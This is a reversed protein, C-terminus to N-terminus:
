EDIARRYFNPFWLVSRMQRLSTPPAVSGSKITILYPNGWPDHVAREGGRSTISANYLVPVTKGNETARGTIFGITDETAARDDMEDLEGYNQYALIANTMEQVDVTARAINTRRNASAVASTVSGALIMIMAIVVLLEVMTFGGKHINKKM